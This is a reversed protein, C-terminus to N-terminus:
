NQPVQITGLSNTEEVTVSVDQVSTKQYSDNRPEIVVEYTGEELGTLKFYGTEDNAITTALTDSGALASVKPESAVPDVTGEINGTIAKDVARIVPQLLYPVQDNVGAEVVSRSADFDLLVTYEIDEEITANINLKVGTQAGSPVFMDYVNGDIEVSHGDQALVLRIQPYTGPDLEKTAIVASAGNALELLDYTENVENLTIWGEPSGAENVEVRLIRVNVADASDIPADTLEVTMSGSGGSGGCGAFAVLLAFLPIFALKSLIQRLM